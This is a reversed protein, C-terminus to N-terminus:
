GVEAEVGVPVRQERGGDPVLNVVEALGPGSLGVLTRVYVVGGVGEAIRGGSVLKREPALIADRTEIKEMEIALRPPHIRM